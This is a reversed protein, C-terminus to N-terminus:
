NDLKDIWVKTTWDRATTTLLRCLLTDGSAFYMRPISPTCEWAPSGSTSAVSVPVGNRQLFVGSAGATNSIPCCYYHVSYWGSENFVLQGSTGQSVFGGNITAAGQVILPGCDWSTFAGAVAFSMVEFEMHRKVAGAGRWGATDKIELADIDQRWVYLPRADSVPWGAAGRATAVTDGEARDAVSVIVGLTDSLTALDPTLNFADSNIPTQSKNSRQQPM